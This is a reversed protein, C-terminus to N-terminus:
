PKEKATMARLKAIAERKEAHLPPGCLASIAAIAAEAPIPLKAKREIAGRVREVDALKLEGLRAQIVVENCADCCRGIMALPHPNNGIREYALGCICCEGGEPLKPRRTM